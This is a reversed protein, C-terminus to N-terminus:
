RVVERRFSRIPLDEVAPAGHLARGELAAGLGLIRYGSLSPSGRGKRPLPTRRDEPVLLPYALFYELVAQFALAVGAERLPDQELRELGGKSGLIAENFLLIIGDYPSDSAGTIRHFDPRRKYAELDARLRGMSETGIQQELHALDSRVQHLAAVKPKNLFKMEIIRREQSTLGPVALYEEIAQLLYINKYGAGYLRKAVSFGDVRDMDRTNNLRDLIKALVERQSNRVEEERSPFEGLPTHYFNDVDTLYDDLLLEPEPVEQALAELLVTRDITDTRRARPHLVQELYDYYSTDRTRSLHALMQMTSHLCECYREPARFLRVHEYLALGVGYYIGAARNNYDEVHERLIASRVEGPVQKLRRGRHEAYCDNAAIRGLILEESWEDLRDEILDHLLTALITELPQGNKAAGRAAEVSHFVTPGGSKRAQKRMAFVLHDLAFRILSRANASHDEESGALVYALLQDLVRGHFRSLEYYGRLLARRQSRTRAEAVAQQCRRRAAVLLELRRHENDVLYRNLKSLPTRFRQRNRRFEEIKREEDVLAEALTLSRNWGLQVWLDDYRVTRSRGSRDYITIIEAGVDQYM